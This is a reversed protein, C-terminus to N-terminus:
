NLLRMKLTDISIGSIILYKLIEQYFLQLGECYVSPNNFRNLKSFRNTVGGGSCVKEWLCKCCGDPAHNFTETLEAFIPAQFCERLSHTAVNMNTYTVTSPDTSMLEDTPYLDGDARITLLHLDSIVQTGIWYILSSTGLFVNLYSNLLRIKVTPDDNRIWIHFLKVIFNGYATSPYPPTRDNTFDPILIDFAKVNLKKVFYDYILEPEFAPDIVSLIGFDKGLDQLLRISQEIKQSSGRGKHDVRYKDHYEPPGDVSIGVNLDFQKFIEIWEKDILVGNTQISLTLEKLYPALSSVLAQCLEVFQSKPL